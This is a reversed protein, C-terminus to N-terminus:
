RRSVQEYGDAFSGQRLTRPTAPEREMGVSFRGVPLESVAAVPRAIGDCFRGVRRKAASDPLREVGRSFRACQLPSTTRAGRPDQSVAAAFQASEM